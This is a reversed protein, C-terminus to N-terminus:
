HLVSPRTEQRQMTLMDRQTSLLEEFNSAPMPKYFYYGQITDCSLDKLIELQEVVEVGEAIVRMGMAHAMSIIAATVAHSDKRKGLEDVFVKDIKLNDIPLHILKGLSSYGTGFDDIAIKLGLSSFKHLVDQSLEMDTMLATETVELVIHAPNAGWKGLLYMFKQVIDPESLQRASVNVSIYPLSEDQMVQQWQVSAQCAQSFVWEGIPVVAGTMEAIPIFVAPSIEGRKTKWRLLLEAGVIQQSQAGMIPQFVPYFEDNAIATRLDNGICLQEIMQHRLTDDYIQWRNRGREKAAYMATDANSILAEAEHSLGQAMAIGISATIYFKQDGVIMPLMFVEALKSAIQDVMLADAVDECLVLFEDGGFRAVTDGPRIHSILLQAIKVLLHDGITHGYSDNILKFNDLDLFFLAVSQGNRESRELAKILRDQMLKRNPLDTLPDHTAQWQLQEQINKQKSIDKLSAVMIWGDPSMFKSITASAPFESGDKRYGAIETRHSMDRNQESSDVFSQVFHHHGHRFRPPLLENLSLGIIENQTYGFMKVTAENAQIIESKVNIALIAIDAKALIQETTNSSLEKLNNPTLVGEKAMSKNILQQTSKQKTARPINPSRYRDPIVPNIMGFQEVVTFTGDYNCRALYSNVRAHHTLADMVVEGQPGNVSVWELAKILAEPEVSGAAEATKAFAKVCLYTGEGFNTLVGNGQPSIGNVEPHQALLELNITDSGRSQNQVDM